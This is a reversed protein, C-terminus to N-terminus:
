MVLRRFGRAARYAYSGALSVPNRAGFARRMYDVDPFAHGALVRIAKPLSGAHRADLIIRNLQGRRAMLYARSPEQRERALARLATVHTSTRASCGFFATALEIGTASVDCISKAVALRHVREWQHDQLGDALVHIDYLWILRTSNEHHSVRHLCALLLAHVPDPVRFGTTLNELEVADRMLEDFAFTGTFFPRHCVDWHLDIVHSLARHPESFIQQTYVAERTVMNGRSYGLADLVQGALSVDRKAVLLDSDCRSRLHSPSYHTCALAEGKFTLVPVGANRLAAVARTTQRRFYDDTLAARRLEVDLANRADNPVLPWLGRACLAQKVLGCVGHAQADAVAAVDLPTHFLDADRGILAALREVSVAM